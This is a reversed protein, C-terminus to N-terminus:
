VQVQRVRIAGGCTSIIYSLPGWMYGAMHGGVQRGGAGARGGENGERGQGDEVFWM